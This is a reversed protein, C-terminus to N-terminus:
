DIAITLRGVFLERGLEVLYAEVTLPGAARALVMVQQERRFITGGAVFFKVYGDEGKQVPLTYNLRIEQGAKGREPGATLSLPHEIGTPREALRTNLRRAIQVVDITKRGLGAVTMALNGRAFIIAPPAFDPHQFSALGLGEPGEPVRELQNAALWESVAEVADITSNCEVIDILARSDRDQLSDWITRVVSRNSAEAWQDRSSRRWGNMDEPWPVFGAFFEGRDEPIRRLIDDFGYQKRFAEDAM